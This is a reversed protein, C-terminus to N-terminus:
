LLMIPTFGVAAFASCSVAHGDYQIWCHATFPDPQVGFVWDPYVGFSAMFEICAFSYMLCTDRRAFAFPRLREFISHLERIRQLDFHGSGHTRKRRRVRNAILDLRVFRLSLATLLVSTFFRWVHLARIPPPSALHVDVISASPLCVDVDFPIRGRTEDTTLIGLSELRALTEADNGLLDIVSRGSATAGSVAGAACKVALYKDRKLDLIYVADNRVCVHTSNSLLYRSALSTTETVITVSDRSLPARRNAGRVVTM